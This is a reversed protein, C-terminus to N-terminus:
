GGRKKKNEGGRGLATFNKRFVRGFGEFGSKNELHRRKEGEARPGGKEEGESRRKIIVGRPGKRGASGGRKKRTKLRELGGLTL